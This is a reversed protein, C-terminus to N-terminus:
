KIALLEIEFILTADPPIVSGAGTKGYALSSPIILKRKGGIKMGLLGMDWGRIVEGAGLTFAFSQKRDYSSDFRVGNELTGLYNVEARDGNKVEKGDGVKIDIIQLPNEVAPASASLMDKPLSKSKEKNKSTVILFVAAVILILIVIVLIPNKNFM